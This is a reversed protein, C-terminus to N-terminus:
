FPPEIESATKTFSATGTMWRECEREFETRWAALSAYNPVHSPGPPSHLRVSGDPYLVWSEGRAPNHHGWRTVPLVVDAGVQWALVAEPEQDPWRGELSFYGPAASVTPGNLADKLAQEYIADARMGM